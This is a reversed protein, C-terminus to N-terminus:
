NIDNSQGLWSRYKFLDDAVFDPVTAFSRSWFYYLLIPKM